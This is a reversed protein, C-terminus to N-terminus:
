ISNNLDGYCQINIQLYSQSQSVPGVLQGENRFKNEVLYYYLRDFCSSILISSLIKVKFDLDVNFRREFKGLKSDSDYIIGNTPGLGRLKCASWESMNLGVEEFQRHSVKIICDNLPEVQNHSTM